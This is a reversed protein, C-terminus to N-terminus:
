LCDRLWMCSAAECKMQVVGISVTTGDISRERRTKAGLLRRAVAAAAAAAAVMLPQAVLLEVGRERGTRGSALREPARHGRRECLEVALRTDSPGSIFSVYASVPYIVRRRVDTLGHTRAETPARRRIERESTRNVAGM